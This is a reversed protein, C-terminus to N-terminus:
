KFIDEFPNRGQSDDTDNKRIGKKDYDNFISKFFDEPPPTGGGIEILKLAIEKETM